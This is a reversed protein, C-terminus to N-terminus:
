AVQKWCDLTKFPQMRKHPQGGGTCGVYDEEDDTTDVTVQYLMERYAGEDLGLKNKGIHVLQMM